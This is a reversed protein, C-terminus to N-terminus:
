HVMRLGPRRPDLDLRISVAVEQGGPTRNWPPLWAELLNRELWTAEYVSECAVAEVRAIAAVMPVLHIRDRPRSWYSAVRRCLSTARGIYLVRDDQDRFRYIGPGDPLCAVIERPPGQM